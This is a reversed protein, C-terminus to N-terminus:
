QYQTFPLESLVNGQYVVAMNSMDAVLSRTFEDQFISSLFAEQDVLIGQIYRKGERWVKRFFVLHGSDLLTLEIPDIENEFIKINKSVVTDADAKIPERIRGNPETEIVGPELTIKRKSAKLSDLKSRAAIDKRDEAKKEDERKVLQEAFPTELELEEIRGLGGDSTKAKKREKAPLANQTSIEDFASQSVVADNNTRRGFSSEDASYDLESTGEYVSPAAATSQRDRQERSISSSFGDL